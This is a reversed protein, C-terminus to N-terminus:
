RICVVCSDNFLSSLSLLKCMRVKELHHMQWGSRLCQQLAYLSPVVAAANLSDAALIDKILDSFLKAQMAMPHEVLNLDGTNTITVDSAFKHKVELTPLTEWELTQEVPIL